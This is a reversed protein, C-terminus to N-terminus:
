RYLANWMAKPAKLGGRLVVFDESSGIGNMHETEIKKYYEALRAKYLAMDGDDRVKGIDVIKYGPKRQPLDAKTSSEYDSDSYFNYM